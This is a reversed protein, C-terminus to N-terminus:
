SCIMLDNPAHHLPHEVWLEFEKLEKVEVEEIMKTSPEVYTRTRHDSVFTLIAEVPATRIRWQIALGTTGSGM